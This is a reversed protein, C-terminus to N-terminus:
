GTCSQSTRAESLADVRPLVAVLRSAAAALVAAGEKSVAGDAILHEVDSLAAALERVAEEPSVSEAPKEETRVAQQSPGFRALLIKASDLARRDDPSSLGREVVAIAQELLAEGRDASDNALVSRRAEVEAALSSGPANLRRSLTERTIGLSRAADTIPTGVALLRAAESLWKPERRM